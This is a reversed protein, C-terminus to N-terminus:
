LSGNGLFERLLSTPPISELSMPSFLRVLQALRHAQCHEAASEPISELLPLIQSRLASIEYILATNVMSDALEQYPFIWQKEGESVSLCRRIVEQPLYGRYKFDRCIRRLLRLDTTSIYNHADIQVTTLASAYIKYKCAEAISETLRPNLAHNGELILITDETLRLYEGSPRNKGTPFDYYPLEVMAGQLLSQLHANFLPLNVAEIHEFDFDGKEDRPSLERDVYYNDISISYPKCGCARLQVSLRKSFTTKGSSSPGAILVIRLEPHTAIHQAIEVIQKEQLAEAVNILENTRGQAIARNLEGVTDCGLLNQWQRQKCYTAFMREQAIMPRLEPWQQADPVRLLLGNGFPLLDFHQLQSTNAVLPGYFRQATEGLSDYHSYLRGSQTLLDLKDTLGQKELLQELQATPLTHRSFPLAETVINQMGVKIQAVREANLEVSGMAACYFANSLPFAMQLQLDPFLERVVKYLVFLLSRVYSKQGEPSDYSLYEVEGDTTAVHGLSVFRNNFRAMLAEGELQPAILTQLDQLTAAFPVLHKRQTNHCYLTLQKM